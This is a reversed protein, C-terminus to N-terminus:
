VCNSKINFIIGFFGLFGATRITFDVGDMINLRLSWKFLIINCINLM